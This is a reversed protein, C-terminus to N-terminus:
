FEICKPTSLASEVYNFYASISFCAKNDTIGVDSWSRFAITPNNPDKIDSIDLSTLLTVGTDNELYIKYGDVDGENPYWSLELNKDNNLTCNGTDNNLLVIYMSGAEENGGLEVLGKTFKKSFLHLKLQSWYRANEDEIVVYDGTDTWNSLWSPPPSKRIDYGVYVVIDQSTTFRLFDRKHEMKDGMATQLTCYNNYSPTNAYTYARDIFVDKGAQLSNLTYGSTNSLIEIQVAGTNDSNSSNGKNGNDGKNSDNGKNINSDEKIPEAGVSVISGQNGINVSNNAFCATLLLVPTLVILNQLLKVTRSLKM